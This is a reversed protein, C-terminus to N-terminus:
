EDTVGAEAAHAVPHSRPLFTGRHGEAVSDRRQKATLFLLSDVLGSGWGYM